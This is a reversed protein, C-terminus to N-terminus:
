VLDFSFCSQSMRAASAVDLELHALLSRMSEPEPSPYLTCTQVLTFGQNIFGRGKMPIITPIRINLGKFSPPKNIM